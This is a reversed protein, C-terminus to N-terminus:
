CTDDYQPDIEEQPVQEEYAEEVTDDYLVEENTEAQVHNVRGQTAAPSTISISRNNQPGINGQFSARASVDPQVMPTHTNRRCQWSYHGMDHCIYCEVGAKKGRRASPPPCSVSNSGEHSNGNIVITQQSPESMTSRSISGYSNSYQSAGVYYQTPPNARQHLGERAQNELSLIKHKRYEQMEKEAYELLLAKNVMHQFTPFDHALLKVRLKAEMGKLFRRIKKKDTDVDKPAYRALRNFRSLYENICSSGQKINAFEEKKLDIISEPIHASRFAEAFETWVITSAGPHTVCYNDWWDAAPGRLQHAAYLTKEQPTCEQPMMLQGLLLQIIVRLKKSM